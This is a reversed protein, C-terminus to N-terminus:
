NLEMISVKVVVLRDICTTHCIRLHERADQRTKFLLPAYNNGSVFHTKTPGYAEAVIGWAIKNLKRKPIKMKEIWKQKGIFCIRVTM